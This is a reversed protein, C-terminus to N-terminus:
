VYNLAILSYIITWMILCPMLIIVELAM